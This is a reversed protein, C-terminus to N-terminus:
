LSKSEAKIADSVSALIATISFSFISSPLNPFVKFFTGSYIEIACNVSLIIASAFDTISASNAESPLGSCIQSLITGPFISLNIESLVM